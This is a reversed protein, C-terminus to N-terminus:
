KTRTSIDWVHPGLLRPFSRFMERLPALVNTPQFRTGSFRVGPGEGWASVGACYILFEGGGLVRDAQGQGILDHLHLVDSLRPDGPHLADTKPAVVAVPVRRDASPLSSVGAHRWEAYVNGVAELVDAVFANDEIATLPDVLFM